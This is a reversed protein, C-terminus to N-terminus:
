HRDGVPKANPHKEKFCDECLTEVIVGNLDQAQYTYEAEQTGCADCQIIEEEIEYDSSELRM